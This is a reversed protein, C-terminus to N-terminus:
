VKAKRKLILSAILSLIIGPLLPECFTIAFAYFPNKCKEKYDNMRAISESIKAPSEGAAKMKAVTYASYKDAFDPTIYYYIVLWSLSYIVAAIVVMLLGIILGNGFSISNVGITKRFKLIAFFIPSFAIVMGVFGIYEAKDFDGNKTVLVTCFMLLAMMAGSLGGYKLIISKM